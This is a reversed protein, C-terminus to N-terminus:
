STINLTTEPENAIVLGQNQLCHLRREVAERYQQLVSRDYDTTAQQSLSHFL